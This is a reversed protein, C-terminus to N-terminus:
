RVRSDLHGPQASLTIPLRLKQRTHYQRTVPRHKHKPRRHQFIPGTSPSKPRRYDGASEWSRKKKEGLSPPLSLWLFLGLWFLFDCLVLLNRTRADTLRRGRRRGGVARMTRRDPSKPAVSQPVRGDCFAKRRPWWAAYSGDLSCSSLVFHRPFKMLQTEVQAVEARETPFRLMELKGTRRTSHDRKGAMFVCNVLTLWARTDLKLVSLPTCLVSGRGTGTRGAPISQFVRISIGFSRSIKNKYKAVKCFM